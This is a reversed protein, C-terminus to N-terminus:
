IGTVPSEFTVTADDAREARRGSVLLDLGTSVNRAM